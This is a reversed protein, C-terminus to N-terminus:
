HRMAARVRLSCPETTRLPSWDMVIWGKLKTRQHVRGARPIEIGTTEQVGVGLAIRQLTAALERGKAGTLYHGLQTGTGLHIELSEGLGM